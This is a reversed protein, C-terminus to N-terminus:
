EIYSELLLQYNRQDNKISEINKKVYPLYSPKVRSLKILHLFILVLLYTTFLVAM